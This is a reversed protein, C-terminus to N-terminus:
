HVCKISRDYAQLNQYEAVQYIEWVACFIFNDM